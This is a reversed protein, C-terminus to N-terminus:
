YVDNKIVSNSQTLSDWDWSHATCARELSLTITLFCEKHFLNMNLWKRFTTVWQLRTLISGPIPYWAWFLRKPSRTSLKSRFASWSLRALTSVQWWSTQWTKIKIRLKSNNKWRKTTWQRRIVNINLTKDVKLVSVIPNLDYKPNTWKEGTRLLLHLWQVPVSM